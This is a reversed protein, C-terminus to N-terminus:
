RVEVRLTRMESKGSPAYARLKYETTQSPKVGVCQRDATLGGVGPEIEGHAGPALEYCLLVDTATRQAAFARILGTGASEAPANGVHLTLDGSVERGDRGKAYLTYKATRQAKIQVCRNLSPSLDAVPPDLRVEIANEVGYCLNVAEGPRASPAAAYFM